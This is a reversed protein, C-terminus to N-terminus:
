KSNISAQKEKLEKLKKLKNLMERKSNLDNAPVPTPRESSKSNVTGSTGSTGSTESASTESTGTTPLEPANNGSLMGMLQNQMNQVNEVNMNSTDIQKAMEAIKDPNNINKMMEHLQESDMENGMFGAMKSMMDKMFGENNEMMSTINGLGSDGEKVLTEAERKLTEPNIKGTEIHKEIKSTINGVLSNLGKHDKINGSMMSQLLKAPDGLDLNKLDIEQMINMAVQGLENDLLKGAGPFAKNMHKKISEPNMDVNEPLGGGKGGGLGGGLGGLMGGLLNGIGGGEGDGGKNERQEELQEEIRQKKNHKLSEVIDLFIQEDKEIPDSTKVMSRKLLENVDGKYTHRYAYVYLVKYYRMIDNIETADLELDENNFFVHDVVRHKLITLDDNKLFILQSSVLDLYDKMFSEDNAFTQPSELFDRYYKQFYEDCVGNGRGYKEQLDTLFSHLTNNFKKLNSM